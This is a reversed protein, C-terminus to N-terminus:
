WPGAYDYRPYISEYLPLYMTLVAGCSCYVAGFNLSCIDAHQETTRGTTDIQYAQGTQAGDRCLTQLQTIESPWFRGYSSGQQRNDYTVAYPGAQQSQLAGAGAELWRRIAGRLVARVAAYNTFTDDALCPAALLVLAEADDILATAQVEDLDPNFLLLDEVSIFTGM